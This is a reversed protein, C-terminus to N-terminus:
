KKVGKRGRKPMIYKVFRQAAKRGYDDTEGKIRKNMLVPPQVERKNNDHGGGKVCCGLLRCLFNAVGRTM